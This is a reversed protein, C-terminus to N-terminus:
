NGNDGRNGGGMMGLGMRMGMEQMKVMSEQNAKFAEMQAPSLIESARKAIQEQLQRYEGLYRDVNAENFRDILDPDTNSQDGFDGNTFTFATREEYMASMLAEEQDFSLQVGEGQLSQKYAQLAQREPQSKEFLELEGYGEAGLLEEIQGNVRDTEAKIAKSLEKREEKSLSENMMQLGMKTAAMQKELILDRVAETDDASLGLESFLPGFLGDIMLSQQQEIMAVMGPDDMMQSLNLMMGKKEGKDRARDVGARAMADEEGALQGSEGLGEGNSVGGEQIGSNNPGEGSVSGILKAGEVRDKWEALELRLRVNERSKLVSFTGLGAVAGLLLVFVGKNM